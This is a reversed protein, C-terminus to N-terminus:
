LALSSRTISHQTATFRAIDHTEFVGNLSPPPARIGLAIAGVDEDALPLAARRPGCSRGICIGWNGGLSAIGGGCLRPMMAVLILPATPAGAAVSPAGAAGAAGVGIPAPAAALPAAPAGPDPLGPILLHGPVGMSLVLMALMAADRM